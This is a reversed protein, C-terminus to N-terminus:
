GCVCSNLNSNLIPQLDEPSRVNTQKERFPSSSRKESFSSGVVVCNCLLFFFKAM